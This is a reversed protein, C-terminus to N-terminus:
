RGLSWAAMPGLNVVERYGAARLTQAAVLARAGSHCYVVVPKDRPGVEGIRRALEQVPLNRAGDLHGGAFEGPTRVDLLTAGASVLLHAQRAGSRLKFWLAVALAAVLLLGIM